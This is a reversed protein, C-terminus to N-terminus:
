NRKNKEIESFRTYITNTQTTISNAFVTDDEQKQGKVVVINKEKPLEGNQEECEDIRSGFMMVKINASEDGLDAVFYRNGKKSMRTAPKNNVTAVFTATEGQEKTNITRISELNPLKSVFIDRLTKGYSYGLLHNEYYWNAFSESFKNQEYIKKYPTSKKKITEMRSEKILPRGKEDKRLSIYKVSKVLDHDHEESFEM